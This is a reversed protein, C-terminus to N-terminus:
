PIHTAFGLYIAEMAIPSVANIMDQNSMPLNGLGNDTFLDNVALKFGDEIMDAHFLMVDSDLGSGKVHRNLAHLFADCGLRSM